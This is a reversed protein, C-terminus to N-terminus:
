PVKYIKDLANIDAVNLTEAKIKKAFSSPDKKELQFIIM